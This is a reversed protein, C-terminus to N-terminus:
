WKNGSPKQSGALLIFPLWKRKQQGTRSYRRLERACKLGLRTKTLEMAYPWLYFCSRRQLSHWGLCSNRIVSTESMHNFRVVTQSSVGADPCEGEARSSLSDDSEARAVMKTPCRKPMRLTPPRRTAVAPVKEVEGRRVTSAGKL